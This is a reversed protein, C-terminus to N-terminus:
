ISSCGVIIAIQFILHWILNKNYKVVQTTIISMKEDIDLQSPDLIFITCLHM